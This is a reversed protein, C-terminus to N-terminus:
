LNRSEQTWLSNLVIFLLGVTFTIFYKLYLADDKSNNLVIDPTVMNILGNVLGAIFWSGIMTSIIKMSKPLDEVMYPLTIGTFSLILYLISYYVNDFYIADFVGGDSFLPPILNLMCMLLILITALKVM